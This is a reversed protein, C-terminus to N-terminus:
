LVCKFNKINNYICNKKLSFRRLPILSYNRTYLIAINVVLIHFPSNLIINIIPVANFFISHFLVVLLFLSFSIYIYIVCLLIYRIYLVLVYLIHYIYIYIYQYAESFFYNCDFFYFFLPLSLM